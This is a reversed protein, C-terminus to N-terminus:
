LSCLAVCVVCIFAYIAPSIQILKMSQALTLKKSKANHQPQMCIKAHPSSNLAGTYKKTVKQSDIIIEFYSNFFIGAKPGHTHKIMDFCYGGIRIKSTSKNYHINFKTFPKEAELSIIM